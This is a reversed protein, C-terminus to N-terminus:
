INFQPREKGKLSLKAAELNKLLTFIFITPLHLSPLSPSYKNQLFMLYFQLVMFDFCISFHHEGCPLILSNFKYEHFTLAFSNVFCHIQFFPKPKNNTPTKKFCLENYYSCHQLALLLIGIVIPYLPLSLICKHSAVTCQFRCIKYISKLLIKM